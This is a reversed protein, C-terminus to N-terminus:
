MATQLRNPDEFNCTSLMLTGVALSALKGGASGSGSGEGVQLLFRRFLHLVQDM